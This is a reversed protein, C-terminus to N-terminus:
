GLHTKAWEEARRKVEERQEPTGMGFKYALKLELPLRRVWWGGQWIIRRQKHEEASYTIWRKELDSLRDLLAWWRAGRSMYSVILGRRELSQLARHVSIRLTEHPRLAERARPHGPNFMPGDSVLWMKYEWSLESIIEDTTFAGRASDRPDQKTRLAALIKQQQKSLGKSMLTESWTM